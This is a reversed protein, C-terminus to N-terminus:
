NGIPYVKSSVSSEIYKFSGAGIISNLVRVDQYIGTQKKARHYFAAFSVLAEGWEIDRTPAIIMNCFSKHFDFINEVGKGVSCSSFCIVKGRLMPWAIEDFKEWTIFSGDTLSFGDSNGHASIHLHSVSKEEAYEIAKKLHEIDITEFFISGIEQLELIKQLTKGEYRDDYIDAASRSELIVIENKM